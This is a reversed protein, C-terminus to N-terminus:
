IQLMFSHYFYLFNKLLGCKVLLIINVMNDETPRRTNNLRNKMLSRGLQNPKKKGGMKSINKLVHSFHLYKFSLNLRFDM